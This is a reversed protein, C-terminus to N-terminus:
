IGQDVLVETMVMSSLGTRRTGKEAVNVHLIVNGSSISVVLQVAGVSRGKYSSIIDTEALCCRDEESTM